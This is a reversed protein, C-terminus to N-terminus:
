GVLVKGYLTTNPGKNYAVFVNDGVKVANIDYHTWGGTPSDNCQIRENVAVTDSVITLVTSYLYGNDSNNRYCVLAQTESIGVLWIYDTSDMSLQLTHLPALITGTISILTAYLYKTTNDGDRYCVLVRNETLTVASVYASYVGNCQVPVGATITTGSVTLLLTNLYGGSLVGGVAYKNYCVIVKTPSVAVASIYVSNVSNCQALAGVTITAGSITLLQAYLYGAQSEYRYCVLVETPSLKVNSIYISNLGNCQVPTGVTVTDGNITILLAYLYGNINYAHYTIIVQTESIAVVSLYASGTNNCQITDGITMVSGNLTVLNAYLGSVGYSNNFVLVKNPSITVTTVYATMVSNLNYELGNASGDWDSWALKIQFQVTTSWSSDGTTPHGHMGRAYLNQGKPLVDEAIQLATTYAGEVDHVVNSFAPDTAVQVRTKNPQAM